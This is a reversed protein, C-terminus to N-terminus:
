QRQTCSPNSRTVPAAFWPLFCFCGARENREGRKDERWRNSYNIATRTVGLVRPPPVCCPVGGAHWALPPPFVHTGRHPRSFLRSVAGAGWSRSLEGGPGGAGSSGKTPAILVKEEDGPASASEDGPALFTETAEIAAQVGKFDVAESSSGEEAFRPGLASVM